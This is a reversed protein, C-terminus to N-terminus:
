FYSVGGLPIQSPKEPSTIFSSDKEVTFLSSPCEVSPSFIWLIMLTVSIWHINTPLLIVHISTHKLLIEQMATCLMSRFLLIQPYPSLTIISDPVWTLFALPRFSPLPSPLFGHSRLYFQPCVQHLYPSFWSQSFLNTKLARLDEKLGGEGLSLLIDSLLWRGQAPLSTFSFVGSLSPIDPASPQVWLTEFYNSSGLSFVFGMWVCPSPSLLNQSLLSVGRLATSM